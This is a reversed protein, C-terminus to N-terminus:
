SRATIVDVLRWVGSSPNAGCPSVAAGQSRRGRVVAAVVGDQFDAFRLRTKDYRPVYRRLEAMADNADVLERFVDGHHYILWVEFCPNSVALSIGKEEALRIAPELPFADVDTVCWVEDFDDPAATRKACAYRVLKEPDVGKAVVTISVAPNRTRYKLGDLYDKETRCGGCIVLVRTRPERTPPRRRAQNERRIM